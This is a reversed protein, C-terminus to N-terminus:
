REAQDIEVTLVSEPQREVEEVGVAALRVLGSLDCDEGLRDQGLTHVGLRPLVPLARDLHALIALCLELEYTAAIGTREAAGGM